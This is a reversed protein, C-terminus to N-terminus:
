VLQAIEEPSEYEGIDMRDFHTDIDIHVDDMLPEIQIRRVNTLAQIEKLKRVPLSQQKRHYFCSSGYGYIQDSRFFFRVPYNLTAALMELRDDPVVSIGKEYRSLAAQPIGTQRSLEAQSLARSERALVLMQPNSVASM